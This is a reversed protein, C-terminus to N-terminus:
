YFKVLIKVHLLVKLSCFSCLNRDVNVIDFRKKIAKWRGVERILWVQHQAALGHQFYHLCFQVMTHFFLQWHIIFQCLHETPSIIRSTPFNSDRWHYKKRSGGDMMKRVINLVDCDFSDYISIFKHILLGLKKPCWIDSIM